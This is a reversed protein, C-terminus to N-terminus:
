GNSVEKLEAIATKITKVLKIATPVDLAVLEQQFQEDENHIKLVIANNISVFCEIYTNLESEENSYFLLKVNGM